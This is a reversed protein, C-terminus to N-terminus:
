YGLEESVKILAKQVVAEANETVTYWFVQKYAEQCEAPIDPTDQLAQAIDRVARTLVAESLSTAFIEAHTRAGQLASDTEQM